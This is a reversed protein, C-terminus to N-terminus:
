TTVAPSLLFLLLGVRDAADFGLAAEEELAAALVSPMEAVTPEVFGRRLYFPANWPMSRSTTLGVMSCGRVTADDIVADLLATGIGRRGHDPLVSVQHLHAWEEGGTSREDAEEFTVLAFGIAPGDPEEDSVAVLATGAEIAWAVDSAETVADSPLAGAPFLSDALAEIERIREIDSTRAVRIM